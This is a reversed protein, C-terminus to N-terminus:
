NLVFEQFYVEKIKGKILIMNIHAKIEEALNVAGKESDASPSAIKEYYRAEPYKLHLFNRKEVRIKM